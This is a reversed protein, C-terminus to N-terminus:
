KFFERGALIDLGIQTKLAEAGDFKREERLRKWFKVELPGTTVQESFDFLHSEISLGHGDFTPRVGVNTVSRFRRGGVVCETAYVGRAPLLEQEAALNLTPFVIKSGRGAGPQITGTLAFPHGLLESAELVNGAAVARRIETSSVPIGNIEAAAMIEVAFGYEKGLQTLLEVNGAQKYGFRFNAGVLIRKARVTEVLVSRVFEEASLDALARDFRMVLAADLGCEAFGAVRQAITMILPPAADPRLVKLPHPDFTIIAAIAKEARAGAVVARIIKQHGIHLGDFNGISIVSGRAGMEGAVNSVSFREALLRWETVSHAVRFAV